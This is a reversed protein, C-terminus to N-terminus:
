RERRMTHSNYYLFRETPCDCRFSRHLNICKFPACIELAETQNNSTIPRACFDIRDCFQGTFGKPCKCRYRELSGFDVFCQAQNHCRNGLCYDDLDMSELIFDRQSFESTASSFDIVKWGVRYRLQTEFKAVFEFVNWSDHSFNRISLHGNIIRMNQDVVIPYAEIYDTSKFIKSRLRHKFHKRFPPIDIWDSLLYSMLPTRVKDSNNGFNIEEIIGDMIIKDTSFFNSSNTDRSNYQISGNQLIKWAFDPFRIPWNTKTRSYREQRHLSNQNPIYNVINSAIRKKFSIRDIIRFGVIESSSWDYTASIEISSKDSRKELWDNLCISVSDNQNPFNTWLFQNSSSTKFGIRNSLNSLFYIINICITQNEVMPERQLLEISSGNQLSTFYIRYNRDRCLAIKEDYDKPFGISKFSFRSQNITKPVNIVNKLFPNLESDFRIFRSSTKFNPLCSDCLFHIKNLM